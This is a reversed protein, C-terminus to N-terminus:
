LIACRRFFMAVMGTLLMAVTAPEPISSSSGAGAGSGAIDGFNSRWTNYQLAGITGGHPDNPLTTTTGAYKRWVVYDAADVKNDGNYSGDLPALGVVWGETQGSPNTGGGVIFMGNASIASAEFLTWGTLSAGLGYENVLVDRLNRMQNTADWIMARRSTAPTGFGVIISGDASVDRAGSDVNGGPLDGLSVMGGTWRFAESGDATRGEGVVVSGDFSAAVAESQFIGGALDGLGVMGAQTWRFAEFNGLSSNSAGVVVLGDGSVGRAWSGFGNLSGLNTMSNSAQTWRFARIHPGTAASEGVVVTGDASVDYGESSTSGGPLDGLGVLGSSETWRFAENVFGTKNGAGVVVSGDASVGRARSNASGEPFDGLGTIGTSATWRFAETGSSGSSLGVVVTGDNSVDLPTSSYSGGALDGLPTFTAAHSLSGGITIGAMVAGAYISDWTKM